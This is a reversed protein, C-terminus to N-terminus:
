SSNEIGFAAQAAELLRDFENALVVASAVAAHLADKHRSLNFGRRDLQEFLGQKVRVFEANRHRRVRSVAHEFKVVDHALVQHRRDLEQVLDAHQPRREIDAM